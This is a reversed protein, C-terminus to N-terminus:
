IVNFIALTALTFSLVSITTLVIERTTLPRPAEPVFIEDAPQVDLRQLDWGAAMAQRFVEPAIVTKGGRRLEIEETKSRLVLGGAVAFVDIVQTEPRFSYFGPSRVSGTVGVRILPYATVDPDRLYRRIERDLYPELEDRLIGTLDIPDLGPLVLDRPPEVRFTDSLVSDGRVMVVVDDGARFDGEALRRRLWSLEDLDAAVSEGGAIRAELTAARRELMERTGEFQSYVPSASALILPLVLFLLFSSAPVTRSYANLRYDMDSNWHDCNSYTSREWYSGNVRGRERYGEASGTCLRQVHSM